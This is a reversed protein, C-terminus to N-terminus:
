WRIRCPGSYAPPGSEATEAFLSTASRESSDGVPSTHVARVNESPCPLELGDVLFVECGDIMTRKSTEQRGPLPDIAEVPMVPRCPWWGDAPIVPRFPRQPWM